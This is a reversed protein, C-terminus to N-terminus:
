STVFEEKLFPLYFQKLILKLLSHQEQSDSTYRLPAVLLSVAPEDNSYESIFANLWTGVRREERCNPQNPLQFLDRRYSFTENKLHSWKELNFLTPRSLPRYIFSYFKNGDFVITTPVLCM